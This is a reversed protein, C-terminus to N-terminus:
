ILYDGKIKEYWLRLFSLPEKKSSQTLLLFIREYLPFMQKVKSKSEEGQSYLFYLHYFMEALRIQINQEINETWENNSRTHFVPFMTVTDIFIYEQNRFSTLNQSIIRCKDELLKVRGEFVSEKQLLSLETIKPFLLEFKNDAYTKGWEEFNLWSDGDPRIQPTDILKAQLCAPLGYKAFFHPLLEGSFLSLSLDTNNVIGIIFPLEMEKLFPLYKTISICDGIKHGSKIQIFFSNKPFLKKNKGSRVKEFFTCLFDTGIDDAVYVPESLFSFEYLIVKAINQAQWGKRYSLLTM